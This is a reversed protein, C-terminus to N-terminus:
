DSKLRGGRRTIDYERQREKEQLRREDSWNARREAQALRRKERNAEAHKKQAAGGTKRYNYRVAARQCERCVRQGSKAIKLNPGFLPHGYPCYLKTARWGRQTNERATVPELHDPNVCCRVRCLHDITMGDPIPGVFEQYAFRHPRIKTRTGDSRSGIRWQSAYGDRDKPGLWLWCGDVAVDVSKLFRERDSLLKKAM